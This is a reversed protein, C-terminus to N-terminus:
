HQVAARIHAKYDQSRGEECWQFFPFVEYGWFFIKSTIGKKEEILDFLSEHGLLLAVLTGHDILTLPFCSSNEVWETKTLKDMPIYADPTEM